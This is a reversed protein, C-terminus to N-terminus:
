KIMFVPRESNTYAALQVNPKKKKLMVVYMMMIIYVVGITFIM